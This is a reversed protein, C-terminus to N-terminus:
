MLLLPAHHAIRYGERAALLRRALEAIIPEARLNILIQSHKSRPSILM